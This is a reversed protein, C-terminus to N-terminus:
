IRDTTILYPKEALAYPIGTKEKEQGTWKRKRKRYPEALQKEMWRPRKQRGKCINVGESLYTGVLGEYSTEGWKNKKTNRL